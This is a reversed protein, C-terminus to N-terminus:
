RYDLSMSLSLFVTRGPLLYYSSDGFESQTVPVRKDSLNYGHLIASYRGLLYGISADLTIYSPASSTNALDLYRRGIYNATATSRWRELPAYIFGLSGLEHPALTLQKGALDVNAGAESAVGSTFYANHYSFASTLTLDNDMRYRAQVEGGKLKQAGGNELVPAGSADTTKLVLNQFNVWFLSASYNLRRNGLTGKIGAEYSQATEPKLIHPTYDPGFDIAAPKFTNRYDAYVVSKDAHDKWFQYSTGVQGSLRTNNQKQDSSANATPDFGDIHCSIKQEHTENLRLGGVLNWRESPKYDAQAYQGFFARRDSISNIEDVHLETTSPVVILGTLPVFYSGNISSQTAYGYLVDAGYVLTVHTGLDLSFHTDFYTDLVHRDENQSDANPTGDNNLASRLFGRIDSIASNAWSATTDWRGLATDHSYGLTVHYRDEDVRADSPNYNADLPTLTTLMTGQRVVPSPPVQRQVTIDGDVRLTGDGVNGSGRYLLHGGKVAERPDSFGVKQADIALSQSLGGASTLDKSASARLSGYSGYGVEAINAAEGAPYHIVHIVGVFSTAGYTVPAAGKLVEIREVDNLNLTAISPNFAGGWPVGDVVLLFADFEHLGWFSPVAGAPGTDGGPPAEVGAVASLAGRLDNAGQARLEEGDIVTIDAPVIDVSLGLRTATVEVIPTTFEVVPVRPEEGLSVETQLTCALVMAALATARPPAAATPVKCRARCAAHAPKGSASEVHPLARLRWRTHSRYSASPRIEVWPAKFYGNQIKNMSRVGSTTTRLFIM